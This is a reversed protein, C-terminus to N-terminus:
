VRFMFVGLKSFGLLTNMRIKDFQVGLCVYIMLTVGRIM